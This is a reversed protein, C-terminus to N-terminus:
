PARRIAAAVERMLRGVGALESFSDCVKACRAREEAVAEAIAAVADSLTLYIKGTHWLYGEEDRELPEVARKLAIERYREDM